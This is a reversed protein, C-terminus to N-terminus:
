HRRWNSPVDWMPRELEADVDDRTLGIDYLQDDSLQSLDVRTRHLALMTRIRQIWNSRPIGAYGAAVNPVANCKDTM